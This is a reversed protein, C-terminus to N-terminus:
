ENAGDGAGGAAPATITIPAPTKAPQETPAQTPAKTPAQTPAATITPKATKASAQTAAPSKTSAPSKTPASSPKQTSSLPRDSNSGTGSDDKDRYRDLEEELRQIEKDKEIVMEELEEYTPKETPAPASVGGPLLPEQNAKLVLGTIWFSLFFLVVLLLIVGAAFLAKKSGATKSASGKRYSKRM